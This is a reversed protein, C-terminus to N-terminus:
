GPRPYLDRRTLPVPNSFPARKSALIQYVGTNGEEFQMACAAMYLRWIRYVSEPVHELVEERRSELRRVWERLTLEYHKRLSEVDHIEFKADEMLQQVTSINELQGDPFVYRNIFETAIGKKWGGEESTIGHNLFLGGPKLARHAVSFYTPLNKLGVHEFMGVSAVKDYEAEGKLDRYDMLEVTVRDELGRRKITRQAHDYQNRSLTIGHANVGYHEAAWCVLAGWGCGIDLMREGAKLRLKRCIHDLKNCQAQELSQGADEYYACSYVMQEDLWLAYFDNSVDYHFSIADRNLEKSAELGLKQRLDKAWRRSGNSETKEPKITLAKTALMAKEPLSLQLSTLYHRLKLASYLDGDIDILGQFYSEVLRLPSQSLVMDQFARSSRFILSFDPCDHGLQVESGDWLCIRISGDFNRFLRYLIQRAPDTDPNCAVSNSGYITAM